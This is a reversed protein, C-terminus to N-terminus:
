SQQSALRRRRRYLRFFARQARAIMRRVIRGIPFGAVAVLASPWILQYAAHIDLWDCSGFPPTVIGQMPPSTATLYVLNGYLPVLFAVHAVALWVLVLAWRRWHPWLVIWAAGTFISACISAILPVQYGRDIWAHLPTGQELQEQALFGRVLAAPTMGYTLLDQSVNSIVGLSLAGVVVTAATNLGVYTTGGFARRWTRRLSRVRYTRTQTRACRTCTVIALGYCPDITPAIRGLDLGCDICLHSCAM